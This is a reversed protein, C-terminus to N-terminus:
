QLRGQKRAEDGYETQATIGNVKGEYDARMLQMQWYADCHGSKMGLGVPRLNVIADHCQQCDVIHMAIADDISFSGVRLPVGGATKITPSDGNKSESRNEPTIM